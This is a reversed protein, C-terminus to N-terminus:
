EYRWVVQRIVSVDEENISRGSRGEDTGYYVTLISGDKRVVSAPYGFDCQPERCTTVVNNIDWTEGDDESFAARIQYNGSERHSYVSILRGDQEILHAPAGDGPKLGIPHPKTFSKGGDESECQYLCLPDGKRVHVIIRGSSTVIAHPEYNDPPFVGDDTEAIDCLHEYTGDPHVRYSKMKRWDIRGGREYQCGVFLLDGDPLLTPGHPSTVPLYFIM